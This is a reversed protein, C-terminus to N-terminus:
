MGLYPCTRIGQFNPNAHAIGTSSLDIGVLNAGTQRAVWLSPGGRGCGLDVITQGPGAAVSLAIRRLDTLTVYGPPEVDEPYDDGYADRWIKLLTPSKAYGAFLRDYKVEMARIMPDPSQSASTM